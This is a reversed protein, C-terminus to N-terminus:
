ASVTTMHTQKIQVKCISLIENSEGSCPTVVKSAPAHLAATLSHEIETDRYVQSLYVCYNGPFLLYFQPVFLLVKVIM